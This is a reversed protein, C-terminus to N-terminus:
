MKSIKGHVQVNDEHLKWISERLYLKEGTTKEKRKTKFDCVLPKHKTIVEESPLVKIDKM